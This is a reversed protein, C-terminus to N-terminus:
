AALSAYFTRDCARCHIASDRARLKAPGSCRPCPAKPVIRIVPPLARAPTPPPPEPLTDPHIDHSMDRCPVRDLYLWAGAILGLVLLDSRRM